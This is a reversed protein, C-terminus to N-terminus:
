LTVPGSARIIQQFATLDGQDCSGNSKRGFTALINVTATGSGHIGAYAGYGRFLTYPGTQSARAVCTKPNIKFDVKIANHDISFAGDSFVALDVNHGAYDVGGAAFVGTAVITSANSNPNTTVLKFHETGSRSATGGTSAFATTPISLLMGTALLAGFGITRLKNV